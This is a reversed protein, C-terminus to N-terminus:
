DVTFVRLNYRRAANRLPTTLFKRTKAKSVGPHSFGIKRPSGPIHPLYAIRGMKKWYFRLQPRRRDQFRIVGATGKPFIWHVEAGNHISRAYPLRSGAAGDVTTGNVTPGRSEISRALEGTSYEGGSAMDKGERVVDRLIRRVIRAGERVSKVRVRVENIRVEAM